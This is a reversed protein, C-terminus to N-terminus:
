AGGPGDPAPAPPDGQDQATPLEEAQAVPAPGQTDDNGVQQMARHILDTIVATLTEKALKHVWARCEEELDGMAAGNRLAGLTSAAGAMFAREYYPVLEEPVGAPKLCTDVLNKWFETVTKGQCRPVISEYLNTKM